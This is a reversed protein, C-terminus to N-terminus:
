RLVLSILSFYRGNPRLELLRLRVAIQDGLFFGGRDEIATNRNYRQRDLIAAQLVRVGLIPQQMAWTQLHTECAFGSQQNILRLAFRLLGRLQPEM